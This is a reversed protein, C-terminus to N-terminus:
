FLIRGGDLRIAQGTIYQSANSCLFLATQAVDHTRGIKGQLTHAQWHAREAESWRSVGETEVAGVLLANVRVGFSAFERACERSFGVVGASAACYAARDPRAEDNGATSAINLIVAGREANEWSFIRGVLQSMFFVSKLNVELCRNWDWEDMKLIPARPEVGANNVLIDLQGWKARTTEILHVCQFKNSVDASIGEAEGGQERIERAVREARDPNQDNIAVRAGLQAFLRGIEAGIGQGAGTIIAVKGTLDLLHPPTM